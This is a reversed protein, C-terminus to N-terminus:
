WNILTGEKLKKIIKEYSSDSWDMEFLGSSDWESKGDSDCPIVVLMRSYFCAIVHVYPSEPCYEKFKKLDEGVLPLIKHINFKKRKRINKAHDIM